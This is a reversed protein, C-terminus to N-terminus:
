FCSKWKHGKEQNEKHKELFYDRIQFTGTEQYVDMVIMGALEMANEYGKELGGVLLGSKPYHKQMLEWSPIIDLLNEPNSSLTIVYIGIQGEQRLIKRKIKDKKGAIGEGAYFEEYWDM